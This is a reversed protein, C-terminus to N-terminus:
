FWEIFRKIQKHIWRGFKFVHCNEWFYNILKKM